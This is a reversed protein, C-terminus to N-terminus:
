DEAGTLSDVHMDEPVKIASRIEGLKALYQLTYKNFDCIKSLEEYKKTLNKQLTLLIPTVQAERSSAQLTSGYVTLLHQVWILYFEIHHTSELSSAVFKLARELYVEPLSRVTMEVDSPRTTEVVQQILELENLRISMMLAKPWDEEQLTKRVSDPTISQELLFPDFVMSTDLSYILLGETTAAAWAQGTPSFQLCYVRVEPKFARAAMDGSRVGPLRIAISGGEQEEREEVLAMNGFETMKRRNIFDNVADFSCNQTIEFKKLLLAESVNYICVNKSQGGALICSGDATYCLSTFAKGQLSKKATILDTDSRGSGLDNRGEISGIQQSTKCHFFTIQGDLTAVAVEEGNPKYTVCLGDATLQVNEHSGGSEVANWLKLTKDWSVSALATSAPSPSFAVSVVPGEHGTLVELLRGIKISWLYIEFVDHGGAAVFEGTSDMAVCAFQAPRPSAFTRFNRYRTMDYARVTGDLSASVIFKRNRSFQVGSISSNHEHFTVFCFGTSTNWLKVKGDEGGTVIYQGDSSYAFCTMTNFHGQQKMIYTESQWEWVLLQGLGVCGLAVWDGTSNLAVSSICQDSISLSHIHNVEPLEHVLFSGNSFGTILIHTEKHYAACTLKVEREEKMLDCLYHRALRRYFLKDSNTSEAAVQEVACCEEARSTDIDDESDSHTEECMKKVPPEWSRLSDMDISCEWVCVQGNRSLTTLDLTGKEFFCAVVCDTHSGLSYMKFNALKDLSYLKTSMDKSGVALVRSDSSWDMCTIEDFAGHFVREMIFPNFEGSHPGPAKFVFVSNDKAAAFHKGDPSFRLCSVSRKFRYKHIIRQSVMSILHAEGEENVAILTCGNPSLDLTTYNFRGEVPLTSSKNNKLDYITIRNGVPSIVSNGDPTFLLNGKRYVTGFLNHFKYAFKM